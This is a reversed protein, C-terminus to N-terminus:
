QLTAKQEGNALALCMSNLITVINPFWKSQSDGIVNCNELGEKTETQPRMIQKRDITLRSKSRVLEHILAIAFQLLPFTLCSWGRPNHRGKSFKDLWKQIVKSQRDRLWEVEDQHNIDRVQKWVINVNKLGIQEKQQSMGLGTRTQCYDSTATGYLHSTSSNHKVEVVIFNPDQRSKGHFLRGIPRWEYLPVNM